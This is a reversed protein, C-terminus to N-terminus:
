LPVSWFPGDGFRGWHLDFVAWAFWFPGSWFPGLPLFFLVLVAGALMWFPGNEHGFRGMVYCQVFIPYIIYNFACRQAANAWHPLDLWMCAQPSPIPCETYVRRHYSPCSYGVGSNATSANRERCSLVGVMCSWGKWGRIQTWGVILAYGFTVLKSSATPKRKMNYLSHRWFVVWAWPPGTLHWVSLKLALV